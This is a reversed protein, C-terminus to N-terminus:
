TVSTCGRLSPLPFEYVDDEGGEPHISLWAALSSIPLRSYNEVVYPDVSWQSGLTGLTEQLDMAHPAAGMDNDGRLVVADAVYAQRREDAKHDADRAISFAAISIM